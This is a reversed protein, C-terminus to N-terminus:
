LAIKARRYDRPSVGTALRFARAFHSQDFYGLTKAIDKLSLLPRKTLLVKAYKVKEQSIYESVSLGTEERFRKRLQSPSIYFRQSIDKVRLSNTLHHDIYSTIREILRDTRDLSLEEIM